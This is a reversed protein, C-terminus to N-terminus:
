LWESNELSSCGDGPMATPLTWQLIQDVQEQPMQALAEYDNIRGIDWWAFDRV